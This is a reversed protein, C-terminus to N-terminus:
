KVWCKASKWLYGDTSRGPQCGPKAGQWGNGVYSEVFKGACNAGDWFQCVGTRRGPEGPQVTAFATNSDWAAVMNISQSSSPMNLSFCQANDEGTSQFVGVKPFAEYFAAAEGTYASCKTDTYFNMQAAKGSSWNAICSPLLALTLTLFTPTRM